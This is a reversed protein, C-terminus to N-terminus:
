TIYPTKAFSLKKLLAPFGSIGVNFAGVSSPDSFEQFHLLVPLGVEAALDYVRGMELGDAAVQSKMEGFGRTGGRAAQRLIDIADKRSADVSDQEARTLLVARDIGVGDMHM